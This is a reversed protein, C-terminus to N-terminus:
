KVNSFDAAKVFHIWKDLDKLKYASLYTALSSRFGTRSEGKSSDEIPPCSPSIWVSYIKVSLFLFLLCKGMTITGKLTITGIM